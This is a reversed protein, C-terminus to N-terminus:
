AGAGGDGAGGAGAGGADVGGADAGGSLGADAGGSLGADFAASFDADEGASAAAASAAASQGIDSLDSRNAPRDEAAPAGEAGGAPPAGATGEAGEAGEVGPEPGAGSPVDGFDVVTGPPAEEVIAARQEADTRAAPDEPDGPADQAPPASMREPNPEPLPPTAIREPNPEPPPPTTIREPNPEPPPPTTIREPNPEPLPPATMPNVFPPQTRYDVNGPVLFKDDTVGLDLLAEIGLALSFGATTPYEDPLVGPFIARLDVPDPNKPDTAENLAALQEQTITIKGGHPMYSLDDVKMEVTTDTVFQNGQLDQVLVGRGTIEVGPAFRSFTVTPPAQASEPPHVEAAVYGSYPLQGIVTLDASLNVAFDNNPVRPAGPVKPGDVKGPIRTSVSPLSLYGNFNFQGFEADIMTPERGAEPAGAALHQDYSAKGAVDTFAYTQANLKATGKVTSPTAALRGGFLSIQAGPEDVHINVPGTAVEVDHESTRTIQVMEGFRVDVADEYYGPSSTSWTSWNADVPIMRLTSGVRMTSPDNIDPFQDPLPQDHPTVYAYVVGAHVENAAGPGQVDLGKGGKGKGLGDVEGTAVGASNIGILGVTIQNKGDALNTGVDTVVRVKGGASLEGQDPQTSHPVNGKGDLSLTLEAGVNEIGVKNAASHVAMRNIVDRSANYTATMNRPSRGETIRSVSDRLATFTDATVTDNGLIDPLAVAARGDQQPQQQAPSGGSQDAPQEAAAAPSVQALLTVTAALGAAM